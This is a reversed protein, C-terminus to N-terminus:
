ISEVGRLRNSIKNEREVVTKQKTKNEWSFCERGKKAVKYSTMSSFTLHIMLNGYCSYPVQASCSSVQTYLARLGQRGSPGCENEM